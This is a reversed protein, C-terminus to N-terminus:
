DMQLLHLAAIASTTPKAPTLPLKPSGQHSLPLFYGGAIWSVYSICTWDRPWFSGRSFPIAVWQLIIAQLIGHVSFSPPSCDMPDCFILCSQFSKSHMYAFMKAFSFIWIYFSSNASWKFIPKRINLNIPTQLPLKLINPLCLIELSNQFSDQGWNLKFTIVCLIM